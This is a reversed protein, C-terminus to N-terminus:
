PYAVGSGIAGGLRLRVELFSGGDKVIIAAAVEITKM